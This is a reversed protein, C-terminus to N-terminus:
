EDSHHKPAPGPAPAESREKEVKRYREALADLEASKTEPKEALEESVATEAKAQVQKRRNDQLEQAGKLIQGLAQHVQHATSLDMSLRVVVNSDGGLPQGNKYFITQQALDVQIEPFLENGVFQFGEVNHIRTLEM